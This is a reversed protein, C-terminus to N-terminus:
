FEWLKYHDMLQEATRQFNTIVTGVIQTERFSYMDSILLLIAQKIPGPVSRGLCTWTIDNDAVTGSITTPWTPESSDSTGAGGAQYVYGNQNIPVVLDDEAFSTEREWCVGQYWGCTFQIEIPNTPYLTDTPWTYGYALKVKGPENYTDVDYYTSSWTSQSEDTDTYKIHTVSQLQGFPLYFGDSFYRCQDIGTWDDLYLKWTQSILRRYMYSEAYSIATIIQSNILDDKLTYDRSLHLHDKAEELTVPNYTPGTVLVTKM